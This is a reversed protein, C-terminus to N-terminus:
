VLCLLYAYFYVCLVLTLKEMQESM